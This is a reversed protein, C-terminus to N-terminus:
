RSFGAYSRIPLRCIAARHHPEEGRCLGTRRPSCPFYRLQPASTGPWLGGALRRAIDRCTPIALLTVGLALLTVGIRLSTGSMKM